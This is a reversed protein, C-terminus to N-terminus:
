AENISASTVQVPGGSVVAVTNLVVSSGSSNVDLDVIGASTSNAIRAWGATGTNSANSQTIANFTIVANSGFASTAPPSSLPLSVLLTGTAATDPGAPQVGTYINLTASNGIATIISNARAMKTANSFNIYSL